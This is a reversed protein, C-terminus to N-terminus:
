LRRAEDRSFFDTAADAAIPRLAQLGAAASLSLMTSAVLITGAAQYDEQNSSGSTHEEDTRGKRFGTGAVSGM